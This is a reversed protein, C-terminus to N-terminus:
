CMDMVSEPLKPVPDFISSDMSSNKDRGGVTLQSRRVTDGVHCLVHIAVTHPLGHLSVGRRWSLFFHAHIKSDVLSQHQLKYECPSAGGYLLKSALSLSILLDHAFTQPRRADGTREEAAKWTRLLFERIKYQRSLQKLVGVHCISISDSGPVYLVEKGISHLLQMTNFDTSTNRSHPCSGSPPMKTLCDVVALLPQSEM